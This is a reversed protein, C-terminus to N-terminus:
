LKEEWFLDENKIMIKKHCNCCRFVNHPNYKLLRRFRDSGCKCMFSIIKESNKLMSFYDSIGSIPIYNEEETCIDYIDEGLKKM